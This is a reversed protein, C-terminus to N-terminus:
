SVKILTKNRVAQKVFLTFVIGVLVGSLHAINAVSGPIFIGFIDIVAWVISALFMPMPMGYVWVIMKPKLIALAGIIGFIAGSAGLVSNYFPVSAISAFLGALFFLYLFKRTGIENELITGFLALAFMNYLLHVLSGHLFISTILTWPKSLAESATLKFSDTIIPFIIQIVFILICIGALWLASYSNKKM